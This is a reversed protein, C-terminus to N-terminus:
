KKSKRRIEIRKLEAKKPAMEKDIEEIVVEIASKVALLVEREARHIRLKTEEPIELQKMAANAAQVIEMGANVFHTMTDKTAVKTAIEELHRELRKAAEVGKGVKERM